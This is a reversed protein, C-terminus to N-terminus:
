SLDCLGRMEAASLSEMATREFKEAIDHRSRQQSLLSESYGESGGRERETYIYIYRDEEAYELLIPINAVEGVSKCWGLFQLRRRSRYQRWVM